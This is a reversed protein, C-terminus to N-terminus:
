VQAIEVAATDDRGTWGSPKTSVDDDRLDAYTEYGLTTLLDDGPDIAAGASLVVVIAVAAGAAEM